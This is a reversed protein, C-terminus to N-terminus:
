ALLILYARTQLALDLIRHTIHFHWSSSSRKMPTTQTESCGSQGAKGPKAWFMAEDCSDYLMM